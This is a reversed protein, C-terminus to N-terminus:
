EEYSEYVFKGSAPSVRARVLTGVPFREAEERMRDLGRLVYRGGWGSFKGVEAALAFLDDDSMEVERVEMTTTAKRTTTGSLSRGCGCYNLAKELSSCTIAQEYVIEGDPVFCFDDDRGKKDVSVLVKM